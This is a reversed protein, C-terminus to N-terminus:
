DQDPQCTGYAMLAVGNHYTRHSFRRDADVRVWDRTTNSRFVLDPGLGAEITIAEASEVPRLHARDQALSLSFALTPM